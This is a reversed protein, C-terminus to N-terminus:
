SGCVPWQGAGSQALLMAARRDQEAEPAAAPDGSGGVSARTGYTMQYKGRYLGGGGIARPDGGSECAAISQLVAPVAVDPAGGTRRQERIDRRLSRQKRLLRDNSWGSIAQRYGKRLHEGQLKADRRALGATRAVLQRHAARRMQAALDDHGALVGTLAGADIAPPASAALAVTPVGLIASAGLVAAVRNKTISRM